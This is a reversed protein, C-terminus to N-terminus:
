AEESHPLTIPKLTLPNDDSPAVPSIPLHIVIRAGGTPPSELHLLGSHEEVIKKVIALGLGTGKPKTTVYPEFINAMITESFGPGDDQFCLEVYRMDSRYHTRTSILLLSGHGDQMAEIANKVINHLLQRLRNKDGEILPQRPDLDLKIEIGAPYDRYLYLVDTIFDNLSVTVFQLQPIRAYDNFADVMDKMAQVQQIITHTARDLVRAQEEDMNKLYKHRIREAALQIPTLPNKIEHALRRAVEAWAADREAKMLATIDDFVIVYGGKLGVPDPLSSGRCMLIQRGQTNLLTVEQRWEGSDTALHPQIAELLLELRHGETAAPNVALEVGLIQSAAANYTRLRGEHDLTLVGSSLRSLVTDSYARQRELLQQSLLAQQQAQSLRRTMTNFSEVLFGLEDSSTRPLQTTYDGRAVAQTGAIVDRIPAVLRQASYVAAWLATLVGFLLVMSLTLIFSIKLPTRLFLLERYSQFATLVADALPGFRDTLAFVAQLIRPEEQPQRVPLYVVARIALGTEVSPDIAVYPQGQRLQGLIMESPRTSLPMLVPTNTEASATGLIRGTVNFLTLELADHHGLLDALVLALSEDQREALSDAMRQTQRLAERMRLDLAAQSLELANALAQEVRVDFWTDIGRQLFQVSFSYVVTVPALAILVFLLVLRVTLRTGPVQQRYQQWLRYGNRGILGLLLLLGCASLALLWLYLRGFYLSNEAARSMLILATLLVALLLWVPLSSRHILQSVRSCLKTIFAAVSVM